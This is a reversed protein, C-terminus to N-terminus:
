RPPITRYAQDARPDPALPPQINFKKSMELILESPSREPWDPLVFLAPDPDGLTVSVPERTSPHHEVGHPTARFLSQRFIVCGLDPVGWTETRGNGHLTFRVVTYGLMTDTVRPSDSDCQSSPNKMAAITPGGLRYTVLSETAGEISVRTGKATLQVIRQAYEKDDPGIFTRSEVTSGDGRRAFYKDTTTLPQQAPTGKVLTVTTEVYHITLPKPDSAAASALWTVASPILAVGITAVAIRTVRM